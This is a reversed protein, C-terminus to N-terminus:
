PNPVNIITNVMTVSSVLSIARGNLITQVTTNTSNGPSSLTVGSNAIITGVMTGGGAYNIVAATGVYWYVNKAQAGGTLIISRAGTPTGVTLATPVQFIWEANADGQADLTLDLTTIDYSSGSVYIGPALTRGGLEATSLTIGGPKNAPSISIYFDSAAQLGAQAIAMTEANGGHAGTAPIVPPPADTYIRGKVNGINLTTETYIDGTSDHFGTILTSAATTGISGNNIVTYIGQNTIGANGGFSGFVSSFLTPKLTTFTWVYNAALPIGALSKAGTTITATYVTEAVLASSPTFTAITGTYSVTGAIVTTGQKLTFTTAPSILTLQDMPISFTATVKKDLAVGTALNVPDTLIVTPVVATTFTWVYDAALPIGALNKAGTTITATYLTGPLLNVTPTFSATATSSNYTITGGLVTTGQKLTFNTAPSKLTVSDMPMSFKATVIKNLVVIKADNVPDTLIVTPAGATTFTWVYDAAMPIGALSKAGTTITATYLLGPLLNVTPTFSAIATTSNYTITGGLVTTGQKLTFNTAPSKLTLSDMPMSFKATVIKNLAVGTALNLPDTLTVTPAGAPTFTWVYNAALPIGILSKAGTTITATYLTGPLLNVSPTFSATTGNYAVTGLLVTTGQKLTFSIGNLTLPDMPLSFTANVIKDLAVGTALNIPDTATVTPSAGTTFTWVYNAALPVGLLSKAGTTITGTYVLGPSLDSTPTFSAVTGNYTVAGLVTTTGQKLTFTTGTVTLYDMPVSFTASVIKNLVVGTALNIPDTSIVTPAAGTTFTWVYNVALPIGALSKAGTTITGTYVLGPSLISTPTFSATTGSYSVAGLVTTTGQKLTFTTTTLTLYDMPVSFTAAVVKNLVVGTALNIPDTSIVIPSLGTNFNWIYDAALPIGALNKAGTTITGTYVTNPSFAATPTFTLTSGSYTIAGAIVNAGQKLTVNAAIMTLPDMPMSFVATVIKDLFVGTAINAPDTSIVTPSVGTNFSWVYNAAMPIGALSKAATTITGTYVSNPSLASTPTFTATTGTYAVTGAIATTGLKVTFTTAPTSLTVPYMPISCTATVVKSLLVGTANFAPDTSIVTPAVGTNFTWVYDAQLANGMPDKAETTVRGTYTTNSVLPTSPTFTATMGSYTVAGAIPVLAAKTGAINMTATLTISSANITAPNMAENFTATVVQNLPVGVAGNAPVTSVVLPCVGVKALYTDKKCGTILVVSILAFAALLKKTKM